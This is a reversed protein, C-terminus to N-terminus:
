SMIKFYFFFLLIGESLDNPTYACLQAESLKFNNQDNQEFENGNKLRRRRSRLNRRRRHTRLRNEKREEITRDDILAAAAADDDDTISNELNFNNCHEHNFVKTSVEM